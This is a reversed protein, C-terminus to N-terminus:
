TPLSANKPDGFTEILPRLQREFLRWRSISTTYIPRRAQAVSATFIPNDNDQFNLCAEDWPLGCRELLERIKSAPNRVLQEYEVRIIQMGEISEWYRMLYLYINKCYHSLHELSTYYSPHVDFHSAYLSWCTAIPDRVCHVILADPFLVRILGLAFFNEPLKDIVYDGDLDREFLGDLYENRLQELLRRDEPTDPTLRGSLRLHTRLKALCAHMLPLEGGSSVQFHNSLIRETLTTGSRPLGVIFILKMDLDLRELPNKVVDRSFLEIVQRVDEEARQADYAVGSRQMIAEVASNGERYLTFARDAHGAIEYIRAVAFCVDASERHSLSTVRLLGELHTTMPDATTPPRLDVVNFLASTQTRDLSLARRYSEIAETFRGYIKHIHGDIVHTDALERFRNLLMDRARAAEPLDQTAINAMAYAAWCTGDSPALATAQELADAASRWQGRNMYLSGLQLWVGYNLPDIEVVRRLTLEAKNFAGASEYNRALECYSPVDLPNSEIARLLSKASRVQNQETL